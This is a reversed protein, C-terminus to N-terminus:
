GGSGRERDTGNDKGHYEGIMEEQRRGIMETCAYIGELRYCGTDSVVSEERQTVTGAIMIQKLQKEAFSSLQVAAAEETVAIDALVSDTITERILAVPLSFGGPLSLVYKSYMKVCGAGSIGSGKYFNIRKKGILLSYKTQTGRNERRASQFALTVARVNRRTVAFIEGQAHTASVSLGRDAYGSILVQGEKVAQGPVCLPTGETVNCSLIVGDRHAVLSSIGPMTATQETVTRERVTIVATCGYTNVGAWQLEPLQALLENKMVESRVQRRVAGFRIGSEKAAELILRDPIQSNGEVSVFLIRGSLLGTMLFLLLFGGTLLPRLLMRKVTWYAGRRSVTTLRDGRRQAIGKVKRYNKRSVSLDAELEGNMTVNWVPIQAANIFLLSKPIDAGILRLRVEGAMSRYLGM